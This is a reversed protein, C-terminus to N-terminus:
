RNACCMTLSLTTHRVLTAGWSVTGHPTTSKTLSRRSIHPLTRKLITSKWLRTAWRLTCLLHLQFLVLSHVICLMHSIHLRLQIHRWLYEFCWFRSDDRWIHPQCIDTMCSTFRALVYRPIEAPARFLHETYVNQLLVNNPSRQALRCCGRSREQFLSCIAGVFFISGHSKPKTASGFGVINAERKHCRSAHRRSTFHTSRLSLLIGSERHDNRVRLEEM